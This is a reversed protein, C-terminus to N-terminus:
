RASTPDVKLAYVVAEDLSLAHGAAWAAAFAVEGLMVRMAQVAQDHGARQEPHLPVSIAERLAEAAGALSASREQQGAANVVWALIELSEAVTERAGVDYGLLLAEHLLGAARDYSGQKNAVMALRSLVAAIGHGDVLARRLILSEEYLSAAREHDGAFYAVNGLSHLSTAIGWKDELNRRLALSEQSLAKGREYDGQYSAVDGLNNLALAVGWTDGLDRFLALGESTLAEARAPDGLSLTVWGLNTLTLATVRTDGLDRSLSLSEEYLLVARRHDDEDEAMQGLNNLASAIGWRNDLERYLALSEEYRARAAVRDGMARAVVALGNLASAVGGKDGLQQYLALSKESLALARGYDGQHYALASAGNLIKAWTPLVSASDPVDEALATLQALWRRGESLHGHGYWFRWLAAGLRLAPETEKHALLWRLAARFNDHEQELRALWAAQDPGTLQPVAEEALALCWAAHAAAVGQLEGADRLREDGFVRVTELMRFRPEGDPGEDVVLLSQDALASLGALVDGELAPLGVPAWCVAEAADLLCGGAFVSLRRFLAQSCPDLLGYSWAITEQLTQQRQPADRPGGSLLVLSGELRKLLAAPALHRSRAAALEIALPLGDLRACLAALAQATAESLSFSPLAEQARAVFLQVAEVQLLVALDSAERSNPVRLPRVPYIREGAVAMRTRSTALVRLGLAGALLDAVQPAAVAVHECNDLVLLLQKDRLAAQLTERPSAGAAEPVGLTRMIAPLVLAPDILAVLSVFAVGDAFAPMVARAVEMALRTKGSGGPGTLTLLRTRPDRLRQQLAAVERERGIFETLAVPLPVRQLGGYGTAEAVRDVAALDMGSRGARFQPHAATVLASREEATLGLAKALLAVTDPRPSSRKGRELTSVADGSLGALEALKEQSLAARERYRRLLAGFSETYGVATAM